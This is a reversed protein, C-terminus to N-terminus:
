VHYGRSDGGMTDFFEVEGTELSYHAGVVMLGNQQLLGELIPSGHRLQRVSADVNARVAASM